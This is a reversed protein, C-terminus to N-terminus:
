WAFGLTLYTVTAEEGDLQRAVGLGPALRLAWIELDAHLEGGASRYWPAAARLNDYSVKAGEIFGELVFQRFGFPGTGFGQFPRWLPLRYALSWGQLYDGMAQTSTYGRPFGFENPPGVAFRGQLTKTANESTWGVLGGLVLQHGAEPM